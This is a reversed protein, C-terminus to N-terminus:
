AAGSGRMVAPITKALIKMDLWLSWEDMYQLDLLMWRDFSINSRGNVQWLCTIGPKVSFRRRQWDQNFGEYDRVPLPRPGVLSMDGKLVNWLQPLEDISSRRLLKGIKTVRPDNKIKFVPGSVENRTVLKPMLKEANPVMTRFKYLTFRRKNLGVREQLFLVPGASTLKVVLATVAFLPGLVVLMAGSVAIDLGRKILLAWSNGSGSQTSIYQHGDFVETHWRVRGPGFIDANFRVMIGHQDCLSAVEFYYKHLSGFPLCNVVEDVVNHRLYESLGAYDSVLEFGSASFRALGAWDDDVFGLVRYGLETALSVQRAFEIARGNTGLILVYRLNRGRIRIQALAIRLLIRSGCVVTTSAVWFVMLFKPTIVEVSFSSDIVLLWVTCLSTAKFIDMLESQRHSLRRSRYPSYICFAVHWLVVAVLLDSVRARMSLVRVWSVPDGAHTSLLTSVWFSLVLLCLDVVKLIGIPPHQKETM